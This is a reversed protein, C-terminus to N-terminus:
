NEDLEWDDWDALRERMWRWEYWDELRRWAPRGSRGIGGGDMADIFGEPDFDADSFIESEDFSSNRSRPKSM